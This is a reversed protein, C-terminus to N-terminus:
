QAAKLDAKRIVIYEDHSFKPGIRIEDSEFTINKFLYDLESWMSEQFIKKEYILNNQEDFIKAIVDIQSFPSISVRKRYVGVRLAGDPSQAAAHLRPIPDLPGFFYTIGLYLILLVVLTILYPQIKRVKM